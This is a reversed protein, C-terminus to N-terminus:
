PRSRWVVVVGVKSIVTEIRTVTDHSICTGFLRRTCVRVLKPRRVHHWNCWNGEEGGAECSKGNGILLPPPRPCIAHCDDCNRLQLVWFYTGEQVTRGNIKGDWSIEGNRTDFAQTGNTSGFGCRRSGCEGPQVGVAELIAPADGTLDGSNDVSFVVNQGAQLQTTFPLDDAPQIMDAEFGITRCQASLPANWVLALIVFFLKAPTRFPHKM